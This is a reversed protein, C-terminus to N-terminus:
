AERIRVVDCLVGEGQREKCFGNRSRDTRAARAKRAERSEGEHRGGREAENGEKRTGHASAEIALGETVLKGKWFGTEEVNPCAAHVVERLHTLIPQAFPESKAIFADVRRDRTGM